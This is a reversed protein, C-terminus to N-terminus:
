KIARNLLHLIPVSLCKKRVLPSITRMWTLLEITRSSCGPTGDGPDYLVQDMDDGSKVYMSAIEAGNLGIFKVLLRADEGTEVVVYVSFSKSSFTASTSTVVAGEVPVNGKDTVHLLTFHEGSLEPYTFTVEVPEEFEHIENGEADTFTIDVAYSSNGSKAGAAGKAMLRKQGLASAADVPTVGKLEVGEPLGKIRYGDGSIESPAAEKNEEKVVEEPEAPSEEGPAAEKNEEKIEEEPEAPSEEGPEEEPRPKAFDGFFQQAESADSVAGDAYAKTPIYSVFTGAMMILALLFALVRNLKNTM